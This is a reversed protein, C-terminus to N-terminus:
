IHIYMYICVFLYNNHKKRRELCKVFALMTMCPHQMGWVTLPILAVLLLEKPGIPM